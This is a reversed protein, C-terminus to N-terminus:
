FLVRIDSVDRGMKEESCLLVRSGIVVQMCSERDRCGLFRVEDKMYYSAKCELGQGQGRGHAQRILRMLM